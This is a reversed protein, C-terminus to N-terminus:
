QGCFPLEDETEASVLINGDEDVWADLDGRYDAWNSPVCPPPDLDMPRNVFWISALGLLIVLLGGWVLAAKDAKDWAEDYVPVVQHDANVTWRHHWRGKGAHDRGLFVGEGCTECYTRDM